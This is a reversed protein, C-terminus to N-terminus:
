RQRSPDATRIGLCPRPPWGRLSRGPSTRDLWPVSFEILDRAPSIPRPEVLKTSISRLAIIHDCTTQGHRGSCRPPGLGASVAVSIPGREARLALGLKHRLMGLGTTPSCVCLCWLTAGSLRAIPRWSFRCSQGTRASEAAFNSRASGPRSSGLGFPVGITVIGGWMQATAGGGVPRLEDIRDNAHVPLAPRLVEDCVPMMAQPRLRDAWRVCRRKALRDRAALVHSLNVDLIVGGQRGLGAM